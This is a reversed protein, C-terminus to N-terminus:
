EGGGRPHRRRRRAIAQQYISTLQDVHHEYALAPRLNLCAAAMERRRADDCITTMARAIADVDAPDKLIFGHVGDTMVETAGNFVTSVVPLGMALAELVVLSCPDHKTPLVFFDAERYFDEPRSTPPNFVVRDGVGLQKALAAYSSPDQKGVVILRLRKDPVKAVARIAEGLGKREYDQAVILANVWDRTARTEPPPSFRALDVANFLRAMRDDPLAPYHERVFRKVYDSLCIVLPRNPDHMLQREVNAMARRRPNLWVNAKGLAAAAVGAHPHYVDCGPVPLMAHVVDFREANTRREVATLFRRYRITRTFGRPQETESSIVSVDHGRRRLAEGLDFTYREAGGRAPDIHLIVLAVKL